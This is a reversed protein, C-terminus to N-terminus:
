KDNGDQGELIRWMMDGFKDEISECDDSDDSFNSSNSDMHQTLTASGTPEEKL